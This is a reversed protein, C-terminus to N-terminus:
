DDHLCCCVRWPLSACLACISVDKCCATKGSSVLKATGDELAKKIAAIEEYQKDEQERLKREWMADKYVKRAFAVDPNESSMADGTIGLAKELRAVRAALKWCDYCNNM